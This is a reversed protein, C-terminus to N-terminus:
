QMSPFLDVRGRHGVSHRLPTSARTPTIKATTDVATAVDTNLRMVFSVRGDLWGGGEVLDVTPWSVVCAAGGGIASVVLGWRSGAVWIVGVAVRRGDGGVSIGGVRVACGGDVTVTVTVAGVTAAGCDGDVTAAGCGGGLAASGDPTPRMAPM